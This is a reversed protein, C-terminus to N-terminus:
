GTIEGLRMFSVFNWNNVQSILICDRLEEEEFFVLCGLGALESEHVDFGSDSCYACASSYQYQDVYLLIGEPIDSTLSDSDSEPM